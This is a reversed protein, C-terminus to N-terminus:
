TGPATSFTGSALADFGVATAGENVADANSGLATANAGQATSNYGLATADGGAASSFDGCALDHANTATGSPSGLVDCVEAGRRAFGDNGLQAGFSIRSSSDADKDHSVSRKRPWALQTGLLFFQAAL